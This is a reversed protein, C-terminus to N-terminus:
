SPTFSILAISTFYNKGELDFYTKKWSPTFYILAISTFYNKDEFDFYSSSILQGLDWIMKPDSNELNDDDQRYHFIIFLLM